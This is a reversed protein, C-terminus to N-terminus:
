SPDKFFIKQIAFISSKAMSKEVKQNKQYTELRKWVNRNKEIRKPVHGAVLDLGLNFFCGM